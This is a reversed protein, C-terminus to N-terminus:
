RDGSSVLRLAAPARGPVADIRLRRMKDISRRRRTSESYRATTEISEHGMADQLAQLDGFQEMFETAFTARFRHPHVKTLGAEEAIRYIIKRVQHSKLERKRKLSRWIPTGAPDPETAFLGVFLRLRQMVDSSPAVLREKEGKGFIRIEGREWDIHELHMNSFEAIRVGSYALLLVILSDREYRCSALMAGVEKPSLPPTALVKPRKIRLGLTPNHEIVQIDILWEYLKRVAALDNHVRGSSVTARREALWEQVVAKDVCTPSLEHALCWRWYRGANNVYTRATETTKEDTILFRRLREKAEVWEM